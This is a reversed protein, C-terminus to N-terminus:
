GLVERPARADDTARTVGRERLKYKEIKGTATMPLEQLLEVFRPVAHRPLREACFARLESADPESGPQPVVAVMVEEEILESPVGFAACLQVEPHSLLVREVEYSSIFEGMRRVVDGLRDSFWLDGDEDIWGRDGTHFWLNRWAEVTKEADGFYGSFMSYPEKPRVCIQGIRGTEVPADDEDMVRVDFDPLPAGAAGVKRDERHNWAVITAETSGYAHILRLGFRREFPEHLEGPIPVGFGIRLPNDADDARPDRKALLVLMAGVFSLVTADHARVDDWFGDADFREAIRIAAGSVLAVCVGYGQAMNHHLPLSVYLTDERGIGFLSTPQHGNTYHQGHSIVAGKAPGTSGSTYMVAVPESFHPRHDGARAPDRELADYPLTEFRDSRAEGVVILRRLNPLRDAIADIKAVSEAGVVLERCGSHHVIHALRDGVNAPNVPVEIGGRHALGFWSALLERCNELMIGVTDGRGVGLGLFAASMGLAMDVAGARTLTGAEDFVLPRDPDQEAHHALLAPLTRMAPDHKGTV